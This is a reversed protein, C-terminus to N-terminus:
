VAGKGYLCRLLPHAQVPEHTRPQGVEGSQGRGITSHSCRLQYPASRATRPSVHTLVDRAAAEGEEWLAETVESVGTRRLLCMGNEDTSAAEIDRTSLGRAYMETAPQELMLSDGKLVEFLNSRFPSAPDAPLPGFLSFVGANQCSIVGYRVHSTRRCLGRPDRMQPAFRGQSFKNLAYQGFKVVSAVGMILHVQCFELNVIAVEVAGKGVEIRM